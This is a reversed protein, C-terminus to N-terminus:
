RVTATFSGNTICSEPGRGTFSGTVRGGSGIHGSLEYRLLDGRPLDEEIVLEVCSGHVTGEFRVGSPLEEGGLAFDARRIRQVFADPENRPEPGTAPGSAPEARADIALPLTTEIRLDGVLRRDRCGSRKGNGEIRWEGDLSAGTHPRHCDPVPPDDECGGFGGFCGAALVMTMWGLRAVRRRM